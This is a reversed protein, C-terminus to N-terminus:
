AAVSADPAAFFSKVIMRGVFCAVVAGLASALFDAIDGQRGMNSVAQIVEVGGALTVIAALMFGVFRAPLVLAAPGAMVGFAIFHLLKDQQPFMHPTPDSPVLMGWMAFAILAGTLVGFAYILALPPRNTTHTM